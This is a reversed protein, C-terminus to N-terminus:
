LTMHIYVKAGLLHWCAKVGNEPLHETMKFLIQALYKNRLLVRELM